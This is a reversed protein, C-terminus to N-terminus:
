KMLDNIREDRRQEIKDNIVADISEVVLTLATQVFESKEIFNEKFWALEELDMRQFYHRDFDRDLYRNGQVYERRWKLYEKYKKDFDM